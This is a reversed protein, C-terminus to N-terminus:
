QVTLGLARPANDPWNKEKFYKVWFQIKKCIRKIASSWSLENSYALVAKSGMIVIFFFSIFENHIRDKYLSNWQVVTYKEKQYISYLINYHKIITKQEKLHNKFNKCKYLITPITSFCKLKNIYTRNNSGAAQRNTTLQKFRTFM